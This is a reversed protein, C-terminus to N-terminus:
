ASSMSSITRTKESITLKEMREKCRGADGQIEMYRSSVVSSGWEERLIRVVAAAELCVFDGDERLLHPNRKM